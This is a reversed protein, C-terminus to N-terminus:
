GRNTSNKVENIFWEYIDLFSQIKSQTNLVKLNIKPLKTIVEDPLDEELLSNLKRLLEMRKAEEQFAPRSLLHKFYLEIHGNSRIAFLHYKIKDVVLTPVFSGEVKGDGWWIYSMRDKSWDLLQKAINVEDQGVNYLKTFFRDEDWPERKSTNSKNKQAEATQGIVRPVLTKMNNGVFQKVEIALIEAPKMQENLFEVIRKLETPIEDALIIMRLNGIKLNTEVNTWFEDPDIDNTFELICQEPDIGNSECQEEFKGRLINIQWYLTANAGYELIQGVVERRIRTDTSRKTEVITPIGDQDIFLHDVSWRGNNEENSPLALERSVLIWKRPSEKNIQDGALLNPYKAVLKQLLDESDYQQERMEVLEDNEQLLFIGGSM